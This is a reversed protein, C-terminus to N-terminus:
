NNMYADYYTQHKKRVRPSESLFKKIFKKTNEEGYIHLYRNITNIGLGLKISWDRGTLIEGDIDILRTTSKIKSNNISNVWRCNDPSYNKSEDIRDITLEDSYGNTLAWEEFLKENDLWQDCIKIGRAGYWRYDKDRKNYCRCKMGHFINQIRKNKWKTM